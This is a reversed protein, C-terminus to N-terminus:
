EMYNIGNNGKAMGLQISFSLIMGSLNSKWNNLFDMMFQMRNNGKIRLQISLSLTMGSWCSGWNIFEMLQMRNWTVSVMQVKLVWNCAILYYWELDIARGISSSCSNCGIGHLQYWQKRENGISNFTIIDNWILQEKKIGLHNWHM